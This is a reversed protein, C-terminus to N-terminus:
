VYLTFILAMQCALGADKPALSIAKSDERSTATDM